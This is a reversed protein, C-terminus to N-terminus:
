NDLTARLAKCVDNKRLTFVCDACVLQKSKSPLAQMESASYVCMVRFLMAAYFVSMDRYTVTVSAQMRKIGYWCARWQNM